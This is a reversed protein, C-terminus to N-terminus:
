KTGTAFLDLQSQLATEAAVGGISQAAVDRYLAMTEPTPAIALEERLSERCQEFQQLAHARQGRMVLGVMLERHVDERLPDIELVHRARRIAADVDGHFFAHRMLAVLADIFRRRLRERERRAWDDAINVLLDARYLPIADCLARHRLEDLEEPATSLGRATLAQFHLADVHMPGDDALALGGQTDRLLWDDPCGHAALAKRLRWLATSLRGASGGRADDSWLEDILENRHLRRGGAIAVRALLRAAIPPLDISRRDPGVDAELSLTGFLRLRIPPM